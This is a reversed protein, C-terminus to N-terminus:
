LSINNLMILQPPHDQLFFSSPSAKGHSDGETCLEGVICLWKIGVVAQHIWSKSCGVLLFSGTHKEWYLKKQVGWCSFGRLSLFDVKIAVLSSNATGSMELAVQTSYLQIPSGHWPCILDLFATCWQPKENNRWLKASSSHFLKQAFDFPSCSTGYSKFGSLQNAIQLKSSSFPGPRKRSSNLAIQDSPLSQRWPSLVLNLDVNDGSSTWPQHQTM